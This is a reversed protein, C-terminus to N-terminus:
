PAGLSGLSLSERLQRAPQMTPPLRRCSAALTVASRTRQLAQNPTAPTPSFTVAIVSSFHVLYTAGRLLHFRGGSAFRLKSACPGVHRFIRNAIRQSRHCSSAREPSVSRAPRPWSLSIVVRRPRWCAPEPARDYRSTFVHRTRQSSAGRRRRAGMRGFGFRTEDANM